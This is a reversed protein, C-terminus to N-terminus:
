PVDAALTKLQIWNLKAAFIDQDLQRKAQVMEELARLVDLSTILGQNFEKVQEQYNLKAFDLSTKGKQISKLYAELSQSQAEFDKTLNRQLDELLLKEQALELKKIATEATTQGGSFFEWRAVVSLDWKSESLVGARDLYYNGELDVSPLYAGQAAKIERNKNELVLAQRDLSTHNAIKERWHSPVQLSKLALKDQLRDFSEGVLKELNKKSQALAAKLREREAEVRAGQSQVALLDSAKNRGISVRSSLFDERRKLIDSEEKLHVLDKELSLFQYFEGAVLLYAQLSTEAKELSALKPLRKAIGLNFYESTGHFLPQTLTLAATHQYAEGFRSSVESDQASDRFVSSSSLALTPLVQAYALRKQQKAKQVDLEKTRIVSTNAVAKEYAEQLTLAQALLPTSFM